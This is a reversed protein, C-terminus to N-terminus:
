GRLQCRGRLGANQRVEGGELPNLKSYASTCIVDSDSKFAHIGRSPQIGYRSWCEDDTQAYYQWPRYTINDLSRELIWNAPRPSIASKVIV